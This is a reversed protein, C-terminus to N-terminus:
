VTLVGIVGTDIARRPDFALNTAYPDPLIPLVLRLNFQLTLAGSAPNTGSLTAVVLLSLPDSAKLLLNKICYSQVSSQVPPASQAEVILSTGTATQLLMILAPGAVRVRANNVTRPQDLTAVVLPVFGFSEQGAAESVFRFPFDAPTSLQLTSNAWLRIPENGSTARATFGSVALLGPEVLVVCLGCDAPTNHGTWRVMLGRKVGIAVGGAGAAEGLSAPDAITIPLSWASGFIAATGTFTALASLSATVSFNPQDAAYPFDVRGFFPDFHAPLMQHTFKLGTGFATFEADDASLLSAGSPTFTFTVKAPMAVHAARADAGPGSGAAATAPDLTLVLTITATAAVIIPSVGLPVTTGLSVTGSKIRLGVFSSAPVGPALLSASVWVSGVGLTLSAGNGSPPPLEVYLFPQAAGARQLGIRAPINFVDILVPRKFADLFPGLTSNPAQGAGPTAGNRPDPSLATGFDRRVVRQPAPQTPRLQAILGDLAQESAISPAPTAIPSSRTLLVSQQGTITAVATARRASGLADTSVGPAPVLDAIVTNLVAGVTDSM